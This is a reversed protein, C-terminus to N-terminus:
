RKVIKFQKRIENDSYQLFYVGTPLNETQISYRYGDYSIKTNIHRGYLDYLSVQANTTQATELYCIALSPNPYLSFIRKETENISLPAETGQYVSINDLYIDNGRNNVSQFKIVISEGEYADLSITEVQWDEMSDPFAENGIISHLDEGSKEFIKDVFTEGCDTSIWVQLTDHFIPSNKVKYSTYFNLNFPATGDLEFMPSILGDEQQERPGYGRLQAIASQESFPLGTSELTEWSNMYDPNNVYWDEKSIGNEFGEWYPLSKVPKIQFRKSRENNILDVENDQNPHTAILKFTKWGRTTNIADLTIETSTGANLDGTWEYSETNEGEFGYTISIENITENGRNYLTISPTFENDCTYNDSLNQIPSVALDYQYEAPNTPIFGENVMYNFADLVNIIGKGFTNDEGEDGLDTASLYLAELIEPGGAEPFAEKLLLVAGAVHPAAMSTGNYSSYENLGIASRVQQGPAVVEPKIILENSVPCLSPGRSSFNSIPFGEEEAQISGVTFCNQLTGSYNQPAGISSADPGNNGASFVNAIGAAEVADMVDSIYSDCQDMDVEEWSPDFGWSNNIVDPIDDTTEENGDPNMAWEFAPMFESLLKLDALDSVVPDTAIFYANYAVGLTDNNEAALGMMTGITHTGHSNEKDVPEVSDFPKWSQSMSKYNGVFHDSIAPHEWWFGTDISLAIRARGTYGMAWLEPAGIAVLGPEIGNPAAAAKETYVPATGMIKKESALEVYAVDTRASIEYVLAHSLEAYMVNAIWFSKYSKFGIHNKYLSIIEDQSASAQKKLAKSVLAPRQKVPTKNDAFENQLSQLDVKDSFVIMVGLSAQEKQLEQALAPTYKNQAKLPNLGIMASCLGAILLQKKLIM